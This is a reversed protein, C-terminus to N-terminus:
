ARGRRLKKRLASAKSPALLSQAVLHGSAGSLGPGPHTAAGIQWLGDVPTRHSAAQPFPRWLLRQDLDAAGGYPDGGIANPNRALLDEPTLARVAVVKDHLGPAHADIRDLIRRVYADTVGTTWAGEAPIEGAADGLPRFPVEQLQIWLTAADDPVRGPDLVSQQGVVVTAERPLLGAEAEACAIATSAAGEGLHLLPVDALRADRWAPPASLAVHIQMAARGPRYHRAADRVPEGVAGAPLLETYLAEPAVSAIVARTARLTRSATAVGVARGGEVLIREVPEGTIVQAQHSDLLARFAAVFRAQGGEVIPLGAAHLTFAFLPIMVAGSAHDPSLGSHLLWPTWLADVEDGSFERRCWGRGSTVTDRLWGELEERGHRLGGSRAIRAVHALPQASHLEAGLLGGISPIAQEIRRLMALYAARDAPDAFQEVTQQPDRHALVASGDRRVTGTVFGEANLYRLGHGHLAEGLVAYAGGTVFEPHWSSFTDHTYGPATVEGSAIFGGPEDNRDVLAVSWGAQALEAAAVLGNIGAGVVIADVADSM